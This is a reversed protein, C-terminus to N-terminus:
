SPFTLSCEVVLIMTEFTVQIVSVVELHAASHFSSHNWNSVSDQSNLWTNSMDAKSDILVEFPVSLEM